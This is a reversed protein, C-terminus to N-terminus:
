QYSCLREFHKTGELTTQRRERLGIGKREKVMDDFHYIINQNQIDSIFIDLFKGEVLAIKTLDAPLYKDLKMGRLRKNLSLFTKWMTVMIAPVINNLSHGFKQPNDQYYRILLYAKKLMDNMDTPKHQKEFLKAYRTQPHTFLYYTMDQLEQSFKYPTIYEERLEYPRPTPYDFCYKSKAM